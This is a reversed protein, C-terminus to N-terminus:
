DEVYNSFDSLDTKGVVAAITEALKTEPKIYTQFAEFRANAAALQKALDTVTAFLQEFREATVSPVVAHVAPAPPPDTAPDAQEFFKAATSGGRVVDCRIPRFSSVEHTRRDEVCDVTVPSMAFLGLGREADELIAETMPHNKLYRVNAVTGRDDVAPQFYVGWADKIKMPGLTRDHDIGIAMGEFHPAGARHSPLTYSYGHKSKIGMVRVGYIEGKERDIRPKTDSAFQEFRETPDPKEEAM